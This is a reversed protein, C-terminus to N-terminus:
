LDNAILIFERAPRIFLQPIIQSYSQDYCICIEFGFGVFKRLSVKGFALVQDLRSGSTGPMGTQITMSLCEM